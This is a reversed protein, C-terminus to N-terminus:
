DGRYYYLLSHRAIFDANRVVLERTDPQGPLQADPIWGEEISRYLLDPPCVTEETLLKFAGRQATPQDYMPNTPAALFRCVDKALLMGKERNVMLVFDHCQRLQPMTHNEDDPWHLADVLFRRLADYGDLFVINSGQTAATFDAYTAENKIRYEAPLVPEKVYLGPVQKWQEGGGLADIWEYLFLALPGTPIIFRDGPAVNAIYPLLAPQTLYTHAFLWTLKADAEAPTAFGHFFDSLKANEPAEEYAESLVAYLAEAHHLLTADLPNVYTIPNAHQVEKQWTNWLLFAVDDLNVEDAFYGSAEDKPEYFPLLCGYLRNHEKLFTQWLGLNSVQDELYAAVYLAMQQRTAVPVETWEKLCGFLRNALEVYYADSPQVATYPHLQLWQNMYIPHVNM